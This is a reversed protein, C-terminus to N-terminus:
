RKIGGGSAGKTNRIGVGNRPGSLDVELYMAGDNKKFILGWEDIESAHPSRLEEYRRRIFLATFIGKTYRFM